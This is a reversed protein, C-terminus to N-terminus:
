EEMRSEIAGSPETATTEQNVPAAPAAPKEKEDSM